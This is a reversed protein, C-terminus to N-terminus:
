PKAKKAPAEQEPQQENGEDAEPKIGLFENWAKTYVTIAPTLEELKDISNALDDVSKFPLAKDGIDKLYGTKLGYFAVVLMFEFVEAMNASGAKDALGQLDTKLDTLIHRFTAMNYHLPYNKGAIKITEM